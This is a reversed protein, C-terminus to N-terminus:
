PKIERIESVRCDPLAKAVAQCIAEEAGPDPLDAANVPFRWCIVSITGALLSLIALVAAFAVGCILVLDM